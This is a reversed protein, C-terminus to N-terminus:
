RGGAASPLQQQTDSSRRHGRWAAPVISVVEQRGLARQLGAQAEGMSEMRPEPPDEPEVRAPVVVDGVELEMGGLARWEQHQSTQQHSRVALAEDGLSAVIIGGCTCAATVASM